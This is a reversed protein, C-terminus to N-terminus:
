ETAEFDAHFYDHTRTTVRIQLTPGYKVSSAGVETTVACIFQRYLPKRALYHVSDGIGDCDATRATWDAYDPVDHLATVANAELLAATM